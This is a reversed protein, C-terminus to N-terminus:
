LTLLIDLEKVGLDRETVSSNFWHTISRRTPVLSGSTYSPSPGNPVGLTLSSVCPVGKLKLNYMFEPMYGLTM